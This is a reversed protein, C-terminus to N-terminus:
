KNKAFDYLDKITSLKSFDFTELKKLMNKLKRESPVKKILEQVINYFLAQPLNKNSIVNNLTNNTLENLLAMEGQPIQKLVYEYIGTEMLVDYINEIGSLSINTYYLIVNIKMMIEAMIPDFYTIGDEVYTCAGVIGNATSDTKIGKIIYEKTAIDVYKLVEIGCESINKGEKLSNVVDILKLKKDM